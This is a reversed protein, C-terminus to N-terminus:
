NIMTATSIIELLGKFYLYIEISKTLLCSRSSFFIWRWVVFESLHFDFFVLLSSVGLLTVLICAGSWRVLNGSSVTGGHVSFKEQLLVVITVQSCQSTVAIRFVIAWSCCTVFLCTFFKTSIISCTPLVYCSTIFILIVLWNTSRTELTDVWPSISPKPQFV